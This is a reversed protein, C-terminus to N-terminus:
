KQRGAERPKAIKGLAEEFRGQNEDCELRKAVAEFKDEAARAVKKAKTKKAMRNAM